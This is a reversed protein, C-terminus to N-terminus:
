CGGGGREDDDEPSCCLTAVTSNACFIAAAIVAAADDAAPNMPRSPPLLCPFVSLSISKSATRTWQTSRLARSHATSVTVRLAEHDDTAHKHMAQAM